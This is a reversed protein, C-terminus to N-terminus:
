IIEPELGSAAGPQLPVARQEIESSSESGFDKRKSFFSGYAPASHITSGRLVSTDIGYIFSAQAGPPAAPLLEAHTKALAFPSFSKLVTGNKGNGPEEGPQPEM